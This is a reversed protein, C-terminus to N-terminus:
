KTDLKRSPLNARHHISLCHITPKLPTSPLGGTLVLQILCVGVTKELLNPLSRVSILNACLVVSLMVTASVTQFRTVNPSPFVWHHM